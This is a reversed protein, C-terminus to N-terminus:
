DPPGGLLQRIGLQPTLASDDMDRKLHNTNFIVVEVHSLEGVPRGRLRTRVEAAKGSSEVRYCTRM